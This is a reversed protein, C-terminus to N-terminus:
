LLGFLKDGKARLDGPFYTKKSESTLLKIMENAHIKANLMDYYSRLLGSKLREERTIRNEDIEDFDADERTPILGAIDWEYGYPSITKNCWAIIWEGEYKCWYYGEERKM